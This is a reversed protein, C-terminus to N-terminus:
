PLLLREYDCLVWQTNQTSFQIVYTEKFVPTQNDGETSLVKKSDDEFNFKFGDPIINTLEPQQPECPGRNCEQRWVQRYLIEGNQKIEEINTIMGPYPHAGGVRNQSSYALGQNGSCTLTSYAFIQTSFLLFLITTKMM